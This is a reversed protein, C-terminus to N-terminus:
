TILSFSSPKRKQKQLHNPIKRILVPTSIRVSGRGFWTSLHLPFMKPQTPAKKATSGPRAVSHFLCSKCWVRLIRWREVRVIEGSTLQTDSHWRDTLFVIFLLWVFACIHLCLDPWPIPCSSSSWVHSITRSDDRSGNLCVTTEEWHKVAPRIRFQLDWKTACRLPHILARILKRVARPFFSNRLRPLRRPVRRPVCGPPLRAAGRIYRTNQIPKCLCLLLLRPQDSWCCVM